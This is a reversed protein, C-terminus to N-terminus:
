VTGVPKGSLESKLRKVEVALEEVVKETLRSEHGRLWVEISRVAAGGQSGTLLGASIWLNLRDLRRMADQVTELTGLEAEVRSLTLRQQRRAKGSRKGAERARASDFLQKAM